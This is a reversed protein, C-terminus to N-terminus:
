DNVPLRLYRLCGEWARLARRVRGALDGLQPEPWPDPERDPNDGQWASLEVRTLYLRGTDPNCRLHAVSGSRSSFV